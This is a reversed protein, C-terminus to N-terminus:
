PTVRHLVFLSTQPPSTPIAQGSYSGPDDTATCVAIPLEDGSLVGAVENHFAFSVGNTLAKREYNIGAALGPQDPSPAM